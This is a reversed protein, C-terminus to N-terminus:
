LTDHQQQDRKIGKDGLKLSESYCMAQSHDFLYIRILEQKPIEM